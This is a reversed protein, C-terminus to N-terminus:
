GLNPPPAPRFVLSTQVCQSWWENVLAIGLGLAAGVGGGAVPVPTLALAPHPAGPTAGPGSAWGQPELQGWRLALFSPCRVPGLDMLAVRCSTAGPWLQTVGEM